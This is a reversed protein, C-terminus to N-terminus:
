GEEQNRKGPTVLKQGGIKRPAKLKGWGGVNLVTHPEKGREVFVL